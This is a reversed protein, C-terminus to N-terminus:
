EHRDTRRRGAVPGSRGGRAGRGPGRRLLGARLGPASPRAARAHRHPDAQRPGPATTLAEDYDPWLTAIVILPGDGDLRRLLEKAAAEGDPGTLYNQAENLWLVTHPLLADAALVAQLSSADAPFVLEWEEPVTQGVAEVATRTKGTCSAGRVVVLVPRAGPAVATTLHARLRDDHRRAVYSPLVFGADDQDAPRGSIAPHVGLRQATWSRVPRSGDPVAAQRELREQRALAEQAQGREAVASAAQARRAQEADFAARWREGALLEAVSEGAAGEVPASMLGRRDAEGRIVGILRLLADLSQPFQQGRLWAGVTTPSVGAAKALARDSPQGALLTRKLEGLRRLDEFVDRPAGGM